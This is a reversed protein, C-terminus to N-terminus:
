ELRLRFGYVPFDEWSFDLDESRVFGMREYMAWAAQMARTTHLIVQEHRKECALQICFTCHSKPQSHRTLAPRSPNQHSM